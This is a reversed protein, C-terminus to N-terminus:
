AGARQAALQAKRRKVEALTRAIRVATPETVDHERMIRDVEAREDDAM